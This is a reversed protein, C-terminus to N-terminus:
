MVGRSLWASWPVTEGALLGMYLQPVADAPPFLWGPLDGVFSENWGNESTAYYAPATMIGIWYGTWGIAPVTGVIGGMCLIVLLETGSLAKDPFFWRLGVNIAMWFVFPIFASMPLNSMVLAASHLVFETYNTWLCLGAATLAGLVVSRRTIGYTHSTRQSSFAQIEVESSIHHSM